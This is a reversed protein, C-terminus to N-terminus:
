KMAARAAKRLEVAEGNNGHSVSAAAQHAAERFDKAAFLRKAKALHYDAFRGAALLQAETETAEIKIAAIPAGSPLTSEVVTAAVTATPPAAQAAVPSGAAPRAVAGSSGGTWGLLGLVVGSIGCAGLAVLLGLIAGSASVYVTGGVVAGVIAAVAAIAPHFVKDLQSLVSSM